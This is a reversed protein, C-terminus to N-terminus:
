GARGAAELRAAVQPPAPAHHAYSRTLVATGHGLGRLDVAYGALEFAPVEAVVTTRSGDAASTGTVRARRASLDALVAGLYEDDVETRVRDVPELLTIGATAAADQLALATAAALTAQFSGDAPDVPHSRGNRVLVQVDVVPYGARLGQALRARAAHEVAALHQAPVTADDGAAVVQVGAGPPLPAVQLEVVVVERDGGCRHVARGAGTAAATFTERVAVLVPTTTVPVGWRTRLRDLLVERHAEGITWLVLQGTEADVVVRASPDEARLGDLAEVLRARQDPSRPSVGVPLSPEPVVWPELVAPEDPDSLTDATETHELGTVAVVEGAVARPVGRRGAGQVRHLDGVRERRDATGQHGSGHVLQGPLLTGSFVRVVSVRGQDDDASTRVVEAVLPGDAEGTIPARPEGDPWTVPPPERRAPAPFGRVVLEIVQAVGVGTTPVCALVPQIAGRAVAGVLDPVLAAGALDEGALYRDLLSEDESEAVLAEVLATRRGSVAERHALEAPRTTATAGTGTDTDTFVTRTLLGLIGAPTDDDALLPLTLPQVGAGFLRECIDVIADFDAGPSDLHTVVVARPMSVAACEEWLMRTPASVGDVASVVFLAADAAQLGARLGGVFEPHGPTDLLTLRVPAAATGPVLADDAVTAEAVALRVSHHLRHEVPLHDTVTTGDEVRGLRPITGTRALVAEALMTKGAGTHGVLVVNRLRLGAAATAATM